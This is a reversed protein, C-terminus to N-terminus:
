VTTVRNTKHCVIKHHLEQLKDLEDQIWPNEIFGRSGERINVGKFNHGHLIKVAESWLEFDAKKKGYLPHKKFFPIIVSNLENIGRVSYRVTGQSRTITGCGITDQVSQLLQIDDERLVIVFEVQWRFYTPKRQRHRKVETYCRLSFCGEGDVLGAIYDGSLKM